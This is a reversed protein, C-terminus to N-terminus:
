VYTAWVENGAEIEPFALAYLAKIADKSSNIMDPQSSVSVGVLTCGDTDKPYNGVHIEIMSFGPVDEVHPILRGHKPSYRIVVDYAGGPIARPKNDRIPPELTYCESKGDLLLEGITSKDSLWRRIITINM